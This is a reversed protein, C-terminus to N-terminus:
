NAVVSCGEGVPRVEKFEYGLVAGDQQGMFKLGASAISDNDGCASAEVSVTKAITNLDDVANAGAWKEAKNSSLADDGVPHPLFKKVSM